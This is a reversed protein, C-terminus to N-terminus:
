GAFAGVVARLNLRYIRDVEARAAGGIILADYIKARSWGGDAVLPVKETPFL